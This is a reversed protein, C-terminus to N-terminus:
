QGIGCPVQERLTHGEQKSSLMSHGLTKRAAPACMGFNNQDTFVGDHILHRREGDSQDLSRTRM